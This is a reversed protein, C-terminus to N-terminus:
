RGDILGTQGADIEYWDYAFTVNFNEIQDNAEWDLDISSINVPFLGTFKYRRLVNGTKGFQTVLAQTKYQNPSSSSNKNLNSVLSNIQNHWLEMGHRIKFDEDNMVTVNWVDFTRDGAVKINRGFYPINVPNITSEPISAARVLLPLQRDALSSVPNLLEVQFLNPRAGGLALGARINNIDFPM